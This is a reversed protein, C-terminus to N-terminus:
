EFKLGNLCVNGSGVALRVTHQGAPLAFPIEVTNWIANDGTRILEAEVPTGGDCSLTCRTAVYGAHRLRVKTTAAPVDVQYEVWQGKRFDSLQLLGSEDTTPALHPGAVFSDSGVCESTCVNSYTHALIHHTTSQWVTKDQSSMHVFVKGLDSLEFPQQKTLLQMYPYSDVPGDGRPIFWAYREVLPEADLYSIAESMYNMQAQVSGIHQEWACFETLWVPKGYKRFREIYSKLAGASGMYCHVAIADVDDLPVLEFFEDLWVIPDSYGALTGYNMAPSVIKMGLEDALAKLRPWHEAAQQPTNNCQDTLNPENFALIYECDPQEQKWQRIRDADFNGNWAMPFFDMEYQAFLEPLVDASPYPGWNYSWTIGPALLPVDTGPLQSFNFSVGRKPSKPLLTLAGTVDEGPTLNGPEQETSDTVWVVCVAELGEVEATIDATGEAQAVVVGSIVTAVEPNSSTWTIQGSVVADAPTFALQLTAYEGVQLQLVTRDLSVSELGQQRCSTLLAALVAVCIVLAKKM